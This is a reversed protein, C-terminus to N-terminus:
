THKKLHIYTSFGVWLISVEPGFASEFIEWESYGLWPIIINTVVIIGGALIVSVMFYKLQWRYIGDSERFKRYLSVVAWLLYGFILTNYLGYSPGQENSRWATMQTKEVVPAYPSLILFTFVIIPLIIVVWNWLKIPQSKYPWIWVLFLLTTVILVGGIWPFYGIIIVAKKASVLIDLGLSGVWIAVSLAFMAYWRRVQSKIDGLLTYMALAIEVGAIILLIIAHTHSM